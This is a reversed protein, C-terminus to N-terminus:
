NNINQQVSILRNQSNCKNISLFQKEAYMKEAYLYFSDYLATHRSVRYVKVKNCYMYYVAKILLM